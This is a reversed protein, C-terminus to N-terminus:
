LKGNIYDQLARIAAAAGRAIVGKYGNAEMAEIWRIQETTARGNLAKMEVWLGAYRHARNKQDAPVPLFLDSVGPKVGEAKLKRAVVINRAGGNPIAILHALQPYAHAGITDRWRIVACQEEHESRYGPPRPRSRRPGIVKGQKQAAVSEGNGATKKQRGSRAQKWHM